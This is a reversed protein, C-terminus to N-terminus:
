LSCFKETLNPFIPNLVMNHFDSVLILSIEHGSHLASEICRLWYIDYMVSISKLISIM